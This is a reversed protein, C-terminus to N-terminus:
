QRKGGFLIFEGQTMFQNEIELSYGLNIRLLLLLLLKRISLDSKGCRRKMKVFKNILEVM